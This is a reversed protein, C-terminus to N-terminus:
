FTCTYENSTWILSAGKIDKFQEDSAHFLLEGNCAYVPSVTLCNPCCNGVIFVTELKYTAQTIYWYKRGLESNNLDAIVAKLWSLDEIPNTVNCTNAQSFDHSGCASVLALLICAVARM